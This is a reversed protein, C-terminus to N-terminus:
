GFMFKSMIKVQGVNTRSDDKNQLENIQNNAFVRFLTSESNIIEIDKDKETNEDEAFPNIMFTTKNVPILNTTAEDSKSNNSIVVVERESSTSSNSTNLFPNTSKKNNTPSSITDSMNIFPNNNGNSNTSTMENNNASQNAARLTNDLKPSKTEACMINMAPVSIKKEVVGGRHESFHTVTVSENLVAPDFVSSSTNVDNNTIQQDQLAPIIKSIPSSPTLTPSVNSNTSQGNTIGSLNLTM